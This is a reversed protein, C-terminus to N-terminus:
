PAQVTVVMHGRVDLDYVADSTVDVGTQVRLYPGLRQALTVSGDLVVDWPEHLKRFPVVAARTILEGRKWVRLRGEASAAHYVGGPGARFRYAPVVTLPSRARPPSFFADVVHGWARGDRQDYSTLAYRGSVMSWRQDVWRGRVGVEDVGDPAFTTLIRDGFRYLPDAGVQHQAYLTVQVRHAVWTSLQVRARELFVQEGDETLVASARAEPAWSGGGIRLRAEVDERVVYEQTFNVDAQLGARVLLPGAFFTAQVRGLGAGDLVDDVDFHRAVGGWGEVLLNTGRVSGRVGDFSQLRVAGIAQQRGVMWTTNEAQISVNMAYLDFDSTHDLGAVWELGAILNVDVGRHHERLTLYQYAPVMPDGFLDHRLQIFTESTFSPDSLGPDATAVQALFLCLLTM